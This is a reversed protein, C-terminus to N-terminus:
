KPCGFVSPNLYPNLSLGVPFSPSLEEAEPITPAWTVAVSTAAVYSRGAAHEIQHLTGRDSCKPSAILLAALEFSDCTPVPQSAKTM